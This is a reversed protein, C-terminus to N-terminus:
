ATELLENNVSIDAQARLVALVAELVRMSARQSETDELTARKAAFDEDSPPTREALAAVIFTAGRSFVQEALPKEERLRFAQERVGPTTWVGQGAEIRSIAESTKLELGHKHAAQALTGEKAEALLEQAREEALRRAEEATFDAVVRERVAALEPTQPEQSEEVEVLYTADGVSVVERDGGGLELAKKLLERPVNVPDNASVLGDSSQVEVNRGQAANNAAFEKLSVAKEAAAELWKTYYEEAALKAYIPADASQLEKVIQERVQELPKQARPAMEELFLIVFGEATEIVPSFQQPELAEVAAQLEGPLTDVSIWGMDGGSGKTADESVSAAVAAFEEGNKLRTHAAEALAKKAEKTGLSSQMPEAADDQGFPLTTVAAPASIFIKRLHAKAPEMFEMRRERYVTEVDDDTVEVAQAYTAPEFAAYSFRVRRPTQYREAHEEFYTALKQEDVTVKDKMSSADIEIYSLKVKTNQARFASRLEPDTMYNLNAAVSTLQERVLEKRLANELQAANMGVARLYGEFAAQSYRGGFYPSSLLKKEIQEAGATLGLEGTFEELLIDTILSELAQQKLDIQGEFMSFQEGLQERLRGVMEQHRRVFQQYSIEKGNVEAIPGSTPRGDFGGIGFGVMLIACFSALLIGTVRKRNNRIIDLM